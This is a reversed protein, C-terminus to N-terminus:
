GRLVEKAAREGSQLAAEMNGWFATGTEAGAFHVRGIPKDFLYRYETLMGPAFFSAAGGRVWPDASWDKEVYGIPHRAEDGLALAFANLIEAKRAALSMQSLRRADANEILALLVGVSGDPPSNDFAANFPLSNSQIGGNLGKARWFPKRYIPYAKIASGNGTRQVSQTRSVPLVPDFLIQQTMTPSMAVIVHDAVWSGHPTTVRVAGSRGHEITTVPTNLKIMSRLPRALGDIIRGSGGVIRHSLVGSGVTILNFPGGCAAAIFLYHLLSIDQPSVSVPGGLAVGMVDRAVRNTVNAEIWSQATQNDWTSAFDADWPADVPVDLAMLTLAAFAKAVQEVAADPLPAIGTFHTVKGDIVLTSQGKTYNTFTKLRFRRLLQGMIRQGPGIWEAGGETIDNPKPGTKLNLIRGGVRGGAELIVVSRRAKAVQEAAYLGSIGAGVVVTNVRKDRTAASAAAPFAAAATGALAGGLATRRDILHEGM